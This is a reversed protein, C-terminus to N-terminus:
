RRCIARFKCYKCNATNSTQTLPKSPDFLEKLRAKLVAEFDNLLDCIETEAEYKFHDVTVEKKNRATGFKPSVQQRGLVDYILPKFEAIRSMKKSKHALLCYLMLQFFYKTNDDCNFIDDVAEAVLSVSGTKYDVIRYVTQGEEYVTQGRETIRDIRDIIFNFNVTLEDDVKFSLYNKEECGLIHLDTLKSDMEVIDRVIPTIISHQIAPEGTLPADLRDTRNLYKKNISKRVQDSIALAEENLLNEFFEPSLRKGGDLWRKGGDLWRKREDEDLYLCMMADHVVNGFDIASLFETPPEEIKVGPLYTFYFQLPCGFYKQLSSASFTRSKKTQDVPCGHDNIPETFERIIGMIREDKEIVIEQPQAPQALNFHSQVINIGEKAYLHKLQLIFRSPDGASSGVTRADYLLTVSRARSILRYFYYAFISEQSQPTPLGFATRLSAPIFTRSRMRRPFIRENMSPIIIHDFDISRTELLGMIQLGRLPEGEFLVKEGAILRDALTFVSKMLPNIGRQRCAYRLRELARRYCDIHVSTLNDLSLSQEHVTDGDATARVSAAAVDALLSDIYDIVEDCSANHDLRRFIKASEENGNLLSAYVFRRRDKQVHGKIRMLREQGLLLHTFPHALLADVDQHFFQEGIASTQARSQLHRLLSVFSVVPTHRLPLGMTLNVSNIAEPLSYVMPMLLNEDPLVVAVRADDFQSDSLKRHLKGIEAGAVKAQIANSPTSIVKVEEPIGSTECGDLSLWEPKPFNKIGRRVFRSASNFDDRMVIGTLDWVFDAYPEERGDIVTTMQKLLSFLKWEVASLVNFGVFVMKLPSLADRGKEEVNRLALRAASGPYSLGEAALRENFKHYLPALTQWLYLFKGKVGEEGSKANNFNKWFQGAKEAPAEIGFYQEMVERQDETLFDTSIENLDALNKFLEDPDALHTDVDNFDSLVTEGWPRFDDFNLKERAEGGLIEAYCNFLLFLLDIRNDAIRGSLSDMVDTITVTQPALMPKGAASSGLYKCFFSGSRRGPFVFCFQSLDTYRSGYASAITELFTKM